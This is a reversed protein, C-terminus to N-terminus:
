VASYQLSYYKRSQDETTLVSRRQESVAHSAMGHWALGVLLEAGPAHLIKVLCLLPLAGAFWLTKSKRSCDQSGFFNGGGRTKEDWGLGFGPRRGRGPFAGDM